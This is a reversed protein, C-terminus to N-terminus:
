QLQTDSEDSDQMIRIRTQIDRRQEAIIDKANDISLLNFINKFVTIRDAPTMAFFNDSDQLLFQTTTVVEKPPLLDQITKQLETDSKFPVEDLLIKKENILQQICDGMQVVDKEETTFLSNEYCEVRFFSSQVKDKKKGHKLQRIILYFEDDTSFLIKVEGETSNKNLMPRAAYKYLGFIPGDFFL